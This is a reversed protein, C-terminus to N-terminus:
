SLALLVQHSRALRGAREVVEAYSRAAPEDTPVVMRSRMQRALESPEGPLDREVWQLRHVPSGERALSALLASWAAVRRHREDPELLAFATGSVALVGTYTRARADHIVGLTLGGAASPPSLLRCGRLAAPLDCTAGRSRTSGMAVGPVLAARGGLCPVSSVHRHQGSLLRLAWAVVVPFWQDATRGGIPWTAAAVGLLVAALATVLDLPPRQARLLGVALVMSTTVVAVQGGRWGAILGRRELPGFRYRAQETRSAM